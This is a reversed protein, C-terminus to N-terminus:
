RSLVRRHHHVAVHACLRTPASERQGDRLPPAVVVLVAPRVPPNLHGVPPHAEEEADEVPVPPVLGHLECPLREAVVQLLLQPHAACGLCRHAAGERERVKLPERAPGCGAVVTARRGEAGEQDALLEEHGVGAVPCRDEVRQGAGLRALERRRVRRLAGLLALADGLQTSGHLRTRPGDGLAQADVADEGDRAAEAVAAELGEDRAHGGHVPVHDRGAVGEEDHGGVAEVHEGVLLNARGQLQRAVDLLGSDDQGVHGHDLVGVVVDGAGDDAERPEHAGGLRPLLNCGSPRAPTLTRGRSSKKTGVCRESLVSRTERESVTRHTPHLM